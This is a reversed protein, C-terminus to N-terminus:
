FGVLEDPQKGVRACFDALIRLKRERAEAPDHDLGAGAAWQKVSGQSEFDPDTV